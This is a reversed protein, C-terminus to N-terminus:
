SGQRLAEARRLLEKFRPDERFRDLDVDSSLYRVLWAGYRHGQKRALELARDLNEYMRAEDGVVAWLWGLNAQWTLASTHALRGEGVDRLLQDLAAVSEAARDFARYGLEILALEASYPFAQRGRAILELAEARKGTNKLGVAHCAYSAPSPDWAAWSSAAELYVDFRRLPRASMMVLQTAWKRTDVNYALDLARRAHALAAEPDDSHDSLMGSVHCRLNRPTGDDDLEHLTALAPEVDGAALQKRAERLMDYAPHHGVMFSMFRGLLGMAYPSIM